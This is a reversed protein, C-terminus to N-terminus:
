LSGFINKWRLSIVGFIAELVISSNLKSDGKVRDQFIVPIEVLRFGGKWARYKMEIQFGYGRQKVRELPIKELVSRDYCVFGATSDKIPLSTILGVYRSAFYSLLIRGIPWNVVTVGKVYRSGISMEAQGSHCPELIRPLDEPNHSLDADMEFVYQYHKKLAWQFGSIYARGLGDKEKRVLLHLRDTYKEKLDKVIEATGDPSSDDVVLVDMLPKIEM